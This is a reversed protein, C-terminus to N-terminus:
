RNGLIRAALLAGVGYRRRGVAHVDVRFGLAVVIRRERQGAGAAVLFQDLQQQVAPGVYFMAIFLAERRQDEGCCGAVLLDHLYQDTMLSVDFGLRFPRLIGWKTKGTGAASVLHTKM